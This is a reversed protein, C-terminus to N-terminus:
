SVGLFGLGGLCVLEGISVGGGVGGERSGIEREGAGEGERGSGYYRVYHLITINHVLHYFLLM